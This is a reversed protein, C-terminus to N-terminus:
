KNVEAKLDYVPCLTKNLDRHNFVRRISPYKKKLEKILAKMSELQVPTPVDKRFDGELCIGISTTNNSQCHAGVMDDARGKFITGDTRIYYHYGIGSWGKRLHAKHIAEVDGYGCAHHLVITTVRKMDRYTVNKFKLNKNVVVTM